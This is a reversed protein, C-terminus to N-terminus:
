VSIITVSLGDRFLFMECGRAQGGFPDTCVTTDGEWAGSTCGMEEVAGIEADWAHM